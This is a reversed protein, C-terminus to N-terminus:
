KISVVDWFLHLLAEMFQLYSIHLEGKDSDVYEM